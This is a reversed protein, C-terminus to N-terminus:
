HPFRIGSIQLRAWQPLGAIRRSAKANACKTSHAFGDRPLHEPWRQIIENAVKGLGGPKWSLAQLWWVLKRHAPDSLAKLRSAMCNAPLGRQAEASSM